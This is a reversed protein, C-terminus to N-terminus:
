IVSNIIAIARQHEAIQKKATEEISAIAQKHEEIKLNRQRAALLRNLELPDIGITEWEEDTISRTNIVHLLAKELLEIKRTSETKYKTFKEQHQRNAVSLDNLKDYIDYSM